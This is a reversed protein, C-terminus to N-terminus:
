GFALSPPLTHPYGVDEINLDTALIHWTTAEDEGSGPVLSVDRVTQQGLTPVFIPEGGNIETFALPDDNTSLAFFVGAVDTKWYVDLYGVKTSDARQQLVKPVPTALALTSLCASIIGVTSWM